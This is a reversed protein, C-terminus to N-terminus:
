RRKKAPKKAAEKATKKVTRKAAPKMAAPENTPAKAAPKKVPKASKAPEDDAEAIQEPRLAGSGDGRPTAGQGERLGDDVGEDDRTPTIGHQVINTGTGHKPM